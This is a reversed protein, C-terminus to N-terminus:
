IARNFVQEFLDARILRELVRPQDVQARLRRYTRRDM